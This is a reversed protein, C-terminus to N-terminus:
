DSGEIPNGWNFGTLGDNLGVDGGDLFSNFDFDVDDITSSGGPFFAGESNNGSSLIDVNMMKENSITQYFAAGPPPMKSSDNQETKKEPAESTEPETKPVTSKKIKPAVKEKKAGKGGKKTGLESANKQKKKGADSEAAPTLPTVYEKKTANGTSRGNTSANSGEIPAVTLPSAATSSVSTKRGRKVGKKTNSLTSPNPSPKNNLGPSPIPSNKLQGQSSSLQMIQGGTASDSVGNLRAIDLRKKNQKELLMLQMQYDQLANNSTSPLMSTSMPPMGMNGNGNGAAAAAAAVAAAAAGSMASAGNPTKVPMNTNNLNNVNNGHVNASNSGNANNIHTNANNSNQNQIHGNPNHTNNTGLNNTKNGNNNINNNNMNGNGNAGGNMNGGSNINNPTGGANNPTNNASSHMNVLNQGVPQQAFLTGEGMNQQPFQLQVGQQLVMRGRASNMRQAAMPQAEGDRPAISVNPMMGSAPSMGHIPQQQQLAAVVQQRLNNMQSQAQQQIHNQQDQQQQQQQQPQVFMPQQPINGNMAMTNM